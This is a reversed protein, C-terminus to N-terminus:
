GRFWRYSNVPVDLHVKHCSSCFEPTSSRHFPKLMTAKHPGPDLLVMRDHLFSLVPNRSAVLRHMEPYELTFGGQGMTDHVDVISHCVLCGIGAQAEPTHIQQRIPTDMRGTLLIAMDHCGGCWKSPKTGITDQMYESSKRHWQNNFSSFHHASSEWQATIDPHCGKNGCSKSELFFDSPILGGSATTNSSPFFPSKDGGGEDEPGRPPAHPNVITTVYAPRVATGLRVAAPFLALLGVALLIRRRAPAAVLALAGALALVFVVAAGEHVRLWPYYPRSTGVKTLFLGTASMVVAAGAYVVLLGRPVRGRGSIAGTDGPSAPTDGRSARGADRRT